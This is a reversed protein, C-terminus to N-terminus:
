TLNKTFAEQSIQQCSFFRDAHSFSTTQSRRESIATYQLSLGIHKRFRLAHLTKM